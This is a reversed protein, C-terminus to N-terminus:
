RYIAVQLNRKKIIQSHNCCLMRPRWQPGKAGRPHAPASVSCWRLGTILFSTRWISTGLWRSTANFPTCQWRTIYWMFTRYLRDLNTIQGRPGASLSLPVRPLRHHVRTVPSHSCVDIGERRLCCVSRWGQGKARVPRPVPPRLEWARPSSLHKDHIRPSLM